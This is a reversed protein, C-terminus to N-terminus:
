CESNNETFFRSVKFGVTDRMELFAILSLIEIIMRCHM